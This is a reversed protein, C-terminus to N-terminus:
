NMKNSKLMNSENDKVSKWVTLDHLNSDIYHYQKEKMKIIKELDNKSFIHISWNFDNQVHIFQTNVNILHIHTDSYILVFLFNQNIFLASKLKIWIILFFYSLIIQKKFAQVNQCIHINNKAHVHISTKWENENNIILFCNCFSINMEKLNLVDIDVFFKIKFNCILHIKAIIEIMEIENNILEFIYINLIIFENMFYRITRIKRIIILNKM